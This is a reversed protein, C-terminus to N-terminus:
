EGVFFSIFLNGFVKRRGEVSDVNAVKKCSILDNSFSFVVAKM